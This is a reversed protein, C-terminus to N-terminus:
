AVADSVIRDIRPIDPIEQNRFRGASSGRVRERPENFCRIRTATSLDPRTSRIAIIYCLNCSLPRRKSSIRPCARSGARATGNVLSRDASSSTVMKSFVRPPLLTKREIAIPATAAIAFECSRSAKTLSHFILRSSSAHFRYNFTTLPFCIKKTNWGLRHRPLRTSQNNQLAISGYGPTPDAM